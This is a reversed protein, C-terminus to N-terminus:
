SVEMSRVTGSGAESYPPRQGDEPCKILTELTSM